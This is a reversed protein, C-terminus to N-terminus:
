NYYFHLNLNDIYVKKEAKIILLFLEYLTKEWTNFNCKKKKNESYRSDNVCPITELIEKYKSM